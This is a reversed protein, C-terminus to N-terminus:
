ANTKEAATVLDDARVYFAEFRDSAASIADDADSLAQGQGFLPRNYDIRLVTREVADIAAKADVAAAAVQKRLYTYDPM